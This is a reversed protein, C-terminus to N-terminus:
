FYVPKYFFMQLNPLVNTNQTKKHLIKDSMFYIFLFLFLIQRMRNSLTM